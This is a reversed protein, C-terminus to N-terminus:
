PGAAIVAAALLTLKAAVPRVVTRVADVAM